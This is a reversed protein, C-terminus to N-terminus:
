RGILPDFDFELRLDGAMDEDLAFSRSRLAFLKACPGRVRFPWLNLSICMTCYM